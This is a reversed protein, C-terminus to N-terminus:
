PKKPIVATAEIEVLIDERFLKSVQVLTSAPPHNANIFKDRINRLTQINAVDLLYFNLKVIDGMTGGQSEVIAKINAFTQEIQKAVDGKGILAGDKDLGVQGSLILMKSTGMDIVVLQSYGKPTVVGPPNVFTVPSKQQAFCATSVFLIILPLFRKM